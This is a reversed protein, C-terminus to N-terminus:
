QFIKNISIENLNKDFFKKDGVLFYKLKEKNFRKNWKNFFKLSVEDAKSPDDKEISSTWQKSLDKVENSKPFYDSPPIFDWVDGFLKTYLDLSIEDKEIIHLDWEDKDDVNIVKNYKIYFLDSFSTLKIKYSTIGKWETKNFEKYEPSKMLDFASFLNNTKFFYEFIAKHNKGFGGYFRMCESLSDSGNLDPYENDELFQDGIEDNISLIFERGYGRIKFMLDPTNFEKEFHGWKEQKRSFVDVYFENKLKAAM